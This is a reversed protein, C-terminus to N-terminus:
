TPLHNLDQNAAASCKKSRRQHIKTLCENQVFREKESVAYVVQTHLSGSSERIKDSIDIRPVTPWM